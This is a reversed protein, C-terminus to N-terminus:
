FGFLGKPLPMNIVNVFLYYILVPTCVSIGILLLYNRKEKPWFILMQLLLYAFTSIIFGASQFIAGYGLLLLITEWGGVMDSKKASAVEVKKSRLTLILKAIALVIICVAIIKPFFGSGVDNKMMRKIGYSQVYVFVGFSFFLISVLFDKKKQSM